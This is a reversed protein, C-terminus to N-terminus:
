SSGHSHVRKSFSSSPNHMYITQLWIELSRYIINLLYYQIKKEKVFRRTVPLDNDNISIIILNKRELLTHWYWFM